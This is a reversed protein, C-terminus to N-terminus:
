LEFYVINRMMSLLVILLKGICLFSTMAASCMKPGSRPPMFPLVVRVLGVWTGLLM